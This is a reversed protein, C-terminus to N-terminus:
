ADVPVLRPRFLGAWWVGDVRRCMLVPGRRDDRLPWLEFEEGVRPPVFPPQPYLRLVMGPADGAVPTCDVLPRWQHGGAPTYATIRVTLAPERASTRRLANWQRARRAPICAGALLLVVVGIGAWIGPPADDDFAFDDGSVFVDTTDGARYPVEVGRATANDTRLSGDSPDTWALTVTWLPLAGRRDPQDEAVSVAVVTAPVETAIGFARATTAPGAFALVAALGLAALLLTFAILQLSRSRRALARQASAGPRASDM